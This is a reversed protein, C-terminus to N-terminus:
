ETVVVTAAPDAERILGECRQMFKEYSPLGVLQKPGFPVLGLWATQSTRFSVIRTRLAQRDGQASLRVEFVMLRRKFSTLSRISFVLRGDKASEMPMKGQM